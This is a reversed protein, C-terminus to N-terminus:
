GSPQAHSRLFVAIDAKGARGEAVTMVLRYLDDAPAHIRVGNLRLFVLAAALAVRKNGDIFPHNGALHFLYASAMEFLSSHLYAGEFNAAPMAVASQLLSLDRLGSSGGHRL